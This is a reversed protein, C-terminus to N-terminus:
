AGFLESGLLLVDSKSAKMGLAGSFLTTVRLLMKGMCDDAVEEIQCLKEGGLTVFKISTGDVLAQLVLTPL